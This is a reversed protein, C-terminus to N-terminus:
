LWHICSIQGKLGPRARDKDRRWASEHDHYSVDITSGRMFAVSSM